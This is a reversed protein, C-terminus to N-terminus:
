EFEVAINSSKSNEFKEAIKLSQKLFDEFSTKNKWLPIIKKSLEKCEPLYDLKLDKWLRFDNLALVVIIESLLWSNTKLNLRKAIDWYHLHFIEHAILYLAKKESKFKSPIYIMNAKQEYGGFTTLVGVSGHYNKNAIQEETIEEIYKLISVENSDWLNKIKTLNNEADKKEKSYEGKLLNLLDEEVKYYDERCIKTLIEEPISIKINNYRLYIERHNKIFIYIAKAEDELPIIKWSIM